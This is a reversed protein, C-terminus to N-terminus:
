LFTLVCGRVLKAFKSLGNGRCKWYIYLRRSMNIRSKFVLCGRSKSENWSKLTEIRGLYSYNFKGFDFILVKKENMKWWRFWCNWWLKCQLCHKTPGNHFVYLMASTVHHFFYAQWANSYVFGFMRYTAPNVFHQFHGWVCLITEFFIDTNKLFPKLRKRANSM